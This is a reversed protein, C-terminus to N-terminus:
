YLPRDVVCRELGSISSDLEAISSGVHGKRLDELDEIQDILKSALKYLEKQNNALQVHM